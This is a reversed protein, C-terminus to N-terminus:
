PSRGHRRRTGPRIDTAAGGGRRGQDDSAAPQRDGLQARGTEGIVHGAAEPQLHDLRARRQDRQRKAAVINQESGQGADGRRDLDFAALRREAFGSQEGM